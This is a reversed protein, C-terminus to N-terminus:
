VPQPSMHLIELSVCYIAVSHLTSYLHTSCGRVCQVNVTMIGIDHVYVRENLNM